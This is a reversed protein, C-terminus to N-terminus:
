WIKKALRMPLSSQGYQYPAGCRALQILSRTEPGNREEYDELAKPLFTLSSKNENSNVAAADELCKKLLMVDCLATNVGQGLDPPFSHLADGVLIVGSGSSSSVQMRPSYQCSPFSSGKTAAFLEWEDPEVINDWELRPFAKIFYAKASQGGDDVRIKETNWLDHNPETCINVSRGNMTANTQPLIVLNLRNTPGNTASQFAYNFGDLIPVLTKSSSGGGGKPIAFNPKLRLGKIRLGYSPSQYQKLRFNRPSVQKTQKANSYWGKQFRGDQLSQRVKSSIGDAGVCLDAVFSQTQSNNDDVKEPNKCQFIIKVRGDDTPEIHTCHVGRCFEINTEDASNRELIAETMVDILDQRPIWYMTGLQEKEKKSLSQQIPKQVDYDFVQEPDAPVIFRAFEQVGLGRQSLNIGFDKTFQQGRQNVNYFYARSPDYSSCPADELVLVRDFYQPLVMAAALGAPGAGVVVATTTPSSSSLSECCCCFLLLFLTLRLLWSSALIMRMNSIIATPTEQIM